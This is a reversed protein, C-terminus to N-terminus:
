NKQARAKEEAEQRKILWARVHKLGDHLGQFYLAMARTDPEIMQDLWLIAEMRERAEPSM